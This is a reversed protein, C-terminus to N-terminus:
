MPCSRYYSSVHTTTIKTVLCSAIPNNKDGTSYYVKYIGIRKMLDICYVCPKSNSLEGNGNVRIVLLKLKIHKQWKIKYFM